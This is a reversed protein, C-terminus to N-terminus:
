TIQPALCLEKALPPLPAQKGEATRMSKTHNILTGICLMNQRIQAFRESSIEQEM